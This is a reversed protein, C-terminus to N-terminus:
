EEVREIEEDGADAAGGAHCYVEGEADKDGDEPGDGVEEMKEVHDQLEAGGKDGGAGADEATTLKDHVSGGDGDAIQLGIEENIEGGRQREVLDIM